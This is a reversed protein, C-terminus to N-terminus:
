KFVTIYGRDSYSEGTCESKLQVVYYYTGDNLDGPCWKETPNSNRYRERGWRDILIFEIEGIKYNSFDVCDNVNDGNPTIINIFRESFKSEGVVVNIDDSSNCGGNNITLVYNGPKTVFINPTTQGTSWSYTVASVNAKLLTKDQICAKIDAGLDFTTPNIVNLISKISDHKNCTSTDTVVLLVNYTGLNQYTQTESTNTSTNGNGFDWYTTGTNTTSVFNATFPPCGTINAGYSSGANVFTELDIKVFADNYYSTDAALSIPAYAGTTTPLGGRICIGQYLMGRKTFQSIGGDVHEDKNGGFYSGFALSSMNSNFVALYIDSGGGYNQFANSTTPMYTNTVTGAIYINQCSDVMFASYVINNPVLGSTQSGFKTKFILLNLSSNVKYITNKGLAGSYVGPTSTLSAASAIYGCLYVNNNQDLDIFYGYDNTNTGLYTSAILGTGTSNLHAIFMDCGSQRSPSIVGTTTPFNNSYTTGSVYVGGSGDLRIGMGNESGNGGLYTSYVLNSLTSDLKFVVADTIMSKVTQIAGSTTPFNTSRTSSVCYSNGYNDVVMNGIIMVDSSYWNAGTISCDNIGDNASGGIYTSGLLKSGSLNLRTVTLDNQGNASTDYANLSVPFNKSASQSYIFVGLDNINVNQPIEYGDGGIYTSFIRTNGNSSYKSLVIDFIGMCTDQFGATDTPYGSDSSGLVYIFGYKDGSAALCNSWISSGSYSCVIVTPDIVLETNTDYGEPFEFGVSLDSLLKYNCKVEVRKGNINQYAYPAKEIIKGVTTTISIENNLLQLSSVNRYTLKIQCPDAKPKLIFDYKIDSASSYVKLSIGKYINNCLLSGYAKVNSKWKSRDSGIFYNFYEKQEDKRIVESLNANEFLVEYNHVKITKNESSTSENNGRHRSFDHAREIDDSSTICYNFSNKNIYFKTNLFEAGFLVKEPWQGKNEKFILPSSTANLIAGIFILSGIYFKNM